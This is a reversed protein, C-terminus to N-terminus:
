TAHRQACDAGRDGFQVSDARYSTVRLLASVGRSAADIAGAVYGSFQPSWESAIGILGGRWTGSQITAAPPSPHEIMGLQDDMTATLSDAAWDKVIEARPRAAQAGFLRTLQERCRQHLDDESLAKRALATMGFFGFLAANGGPMSADHIEALPGSHSRAGGSLGQERWFPADYIAVYKAHSAMWTPTDRWTRSLSAPLAPTFEINSIALRPPIALLVAEASCTAPRGQSDETGLEIVHETRRVCQVSQGTVLRGPLLRSRLADVLAAMGGVVRVSQPSMAYGRMRLSPERPSREVLIDGTEHQEFRELGLDTMLRDLRPQISPWFWTPGLDFRNFDNAETGECSASVVRGGVRARAELVMYDEIGQQELLYAAYLGSLGAGVIAIRSHTM